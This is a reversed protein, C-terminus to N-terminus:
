KEAVGLAIFRKAVDEPVSVDEGKAIVLNEKTGAKPVLLTDLATIKVNPM